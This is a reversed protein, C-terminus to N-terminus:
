SKNLFYAASLMALSTALVMLDVPFRTRWYRESPSFHYHKELVSAAFIGPMPLWYLVLLAYPWWRLKSYYAVFYGILGVLTSVFSLRLVWGWARAKAAQQSSPRECM